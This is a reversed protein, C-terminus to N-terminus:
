ALVLRRKKRTSFERPLTDVNYFSLIQREDDSYYTAENGRKTGRSLLISAQSQQRRQSSQPLSSRKSERAKEEAPPFYQQEHEDGNVDMASAHIEPDDDSESGEILGSGDDEVYADGSGDLGEAESEGNSEEDEESDEGESPSYDNEPDEDLKKQKMKQALKYQKEHKDALKTLSRPIRVGKNLQIIAVACPKCVRKDLSISYAISGSQVVKFCIGCQQCNKIHKKCLLLKNDEVNLTRNECQRPRKYTCIRNSEGIDRLEKQCGSCTGKKGLTAYEFCQACSKADQHLSCLYGQQRARECGRFSCPLVFVIGKNEMANFHISDKSELFLFSM